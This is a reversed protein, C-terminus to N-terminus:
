EFCQPSQVIRIFDGSLFDTYKNHIRSKILEVQKKVGRPKKMIRDADSRISSDKLDGIM